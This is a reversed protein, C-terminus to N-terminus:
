CIVLYIKIVPYIDTLIILSKRERQDTNSMKKYVYTQSVCVIYM